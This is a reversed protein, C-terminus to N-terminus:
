INALKCTDGSVQLGLAELLPLLRTRINKYERNEKDDKSYEATPLWEKFVLRRNEAEPSLSEFDAM